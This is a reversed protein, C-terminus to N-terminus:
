LILASFHLLFKSSGVKYGTPGFPSSGRQEINAMWFTTAPARKALLTATENDAPVLGTEPGYGLLGTAHVLKQAPQNTDNVKSAYKKRINTAVEPQNGTPTQPTSEALVRAAEALELPISYSKRLTNKASSNSAADRAKKTTSNQLSGLSVDLPAATNGSSVSINSNFEYINFYPNEIRAKNVVALAALAHQILQQPDKVTVNGTSSNSSGISVTARPNLTTRKHFEQHALHSASITTIFFLVAYYCCWLFTLQKAM